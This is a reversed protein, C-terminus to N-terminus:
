PAPDPDRPAEGAKLRAWWAMREGIRKELGMPGPEYFRSAELGAPMYEQPIYAEPAEHAYQYGAGYGVDKMLGTVANRLHMPVPAAPTERALARAAGWATYIRNSKPATALYVAAEALALEGEPAGLFDFTDKAGLAVVLAQPDALGIDEVAM